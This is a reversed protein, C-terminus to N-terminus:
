ITRSLLPFIKEADDMYIEMTGINAKFIIGDKDPTLGLIELHLNGPHSPEFWYSQLFYKYTLFGLISGAIIVRKSTITLYLWSISVGVGGLKTVVEHQTSDSVIEENPELLKRDFTVPAKLVHYRIFATTTLALIFGIWFLFVIAWINGKIAEPLLMAVFISWFLVGFVSSGWKLGSYIRKHKTNKM